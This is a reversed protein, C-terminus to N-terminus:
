VLCVFWDNFWVFLGTMLGCVFWDNIWVFLGTMLGSLCVLCVFWDNIWVFLGTLLRYFMTWHSVCKTM